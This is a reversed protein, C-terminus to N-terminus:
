KKSKKRIQRNSTLKSSSRGRNMDGVTQFKIFNLNKRLENVRKSEKKLVLKKTDFIRKYFRKAQSCRVLSRM